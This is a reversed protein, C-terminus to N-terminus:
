RRGGLRDAIAIVNGIPVLDGQGTDTRKEQPYERQRYEAKRDATDRHHKSIWQYATAVWDVRWRGNGEHWALCEAVLTRARERSEQPWTRPYFQPLNKELRRALRSRQEANLAEPPPTETGHTKAL